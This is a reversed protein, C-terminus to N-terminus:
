GIGRRIRPFSTPISHRIPHTALLIDQKQSLTSSDYVFARRDFVLRCSSIPARRDLVLRRRPFLSDRRDRVLRRRLFLLM